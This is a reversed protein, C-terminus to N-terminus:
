YAATTTQTQPKVMSGQTYVIPLTITVDDGQMSEPFPPYPAVVKATSLADHDFLDRGSPEIVAADALSGDKLIRLKLKVTGQWKNKLAENPYSIAQSIKVQVSRVYATVGTLGPIVDTSASQTTTTTTTSSATATSSVPAVPSAPAVAPVASASSYSSATPPTAPAAPPSVTSEREYGNANDIEKIFEKIGRTPMKVQDAAYEKSRMITPTLTVVLEKGQDPSQKSTNRFFLGLIPMKSLFPVQKVQESDTYRILGAFVVTQRDDLLLQTQASRTKYAIDSTTSASIPFTNDLDSIQLNMVVDVKNGEKITPTVTLTVGYQKFTVNSQVSGGTANTTTTQIPVEGGVNITAEKGSSVLIRPRSLDRAKGETVLLNITNVIATTRNFQGFKFWDKSGTTPLGTENYNLAMANGSGGQWDFGLNKDLTTGIEVIQMDIQILDANFQEKTLNIVQDTYPELTKELTLKKDKPVDGSVVIKGEAANAELNINGIGAEALMHGIRDRLTGLDQTTVHTLITRKGDADWLFIATQGPKKALVLISDTQADAVDAIDPNTVSVRTLGNVPLTQADGVLMNISETSDDAFSFPIGQPLLLAGACALALFKKFIDM